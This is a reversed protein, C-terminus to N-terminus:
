SSATSSSMKAFTASKIRKWSMVRGKLRKSIHNKSINPIHEFKYSNDRWMQIDHLIFSQPAM